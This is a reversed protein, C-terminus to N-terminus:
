SRQLRALSRDISQHFCSKSQRHRNETSPSNNDHSHNLVDLAQSYLLIAQDVERSREYCAALDSLCVAYPVVVAHNTTNSNTSGTRNGGSHLCKRYVDLAVQHCHIAASVNHQMHFRILGLSNWLDAVKKHCHGYEQTCTEIDNLVELLVAPNTTTTTTDFDTPEYPSPLISCSATVRALQSGTSAIPSISLCTASSSTSSSSSSSPSAARPSSSSSTGTLPGQPKRCSSSHCSTSSLPYVSIETTSSSSACTEVSSSHSSDVALSDDSTRSTNMKRQSLLPSTLSLLM